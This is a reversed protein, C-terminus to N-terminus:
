KKDSWDLGESMILVTSGKDAPKVFIKLEAKGKTRTLIASPGAILDSGDSKWGKEELKKSFETALERHGKDSKFSMHEVLKKYVIDTVDKPLPLDKVNITDAANATKDEDEEDADAKRTLKAKGPKVAAKAKDTVKAKEATAIPKAPASYPVTFKLDVDWTKDFFKQEGDTTLEGEIHGEEVEFKSTRITGASSFPMRGHATHVVQCSFIKGDEFTSIVLASGYDGFGAKFDPKPDKSHDKETFVLVISPKDDFPEGPRASVYALKAPKGNGNFTGSISAKVPGAPKANAVPKANPDLGMPVDWKLEFAVKILDGEVASLHAEGRVRGNEETLSAKIPSGSKTFTTGEGTAYCWEFTGSKTFKLVMFPQDLYVLQDKKLSAQIPAIPIKRDSLVVLIREDDGKGAEYAVAHSYKFVHKSLTATGEVPKTAPNAEQAGCVQTVALSLFLAIILNRQKM